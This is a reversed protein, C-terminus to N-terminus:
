TRTNRWDVEVVVRHHRLDLWLSRVHPWIRQQAQWWYIATGGLVVVLIIFVLM